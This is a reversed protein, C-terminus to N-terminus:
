RNGSMSPPPSPSTPGSPNQVSVMPGASYRTATAGPDGPPIGTNLLSVTQSAYHSGEGTPDGPPVAVNLLSVTESAYHSGAGTPDGPPIATNLVSVTQKAYRSGVTTPDGPAQATNLISLTFAVAGPHFLVVFRNGSNLVDSSIGTATTAT